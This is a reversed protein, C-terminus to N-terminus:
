QAQRMRDCYVWVNGDSDMELYCGAERLAQAYGLTMKYGSEVGVLVKMKSGGKENSPKGAAMNNKVQSQNNPRKQSFSGRTMM